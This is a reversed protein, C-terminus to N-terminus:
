SGIAEGAFQQWWSETQRDWMILDSNRLKSSTRFDHIVGDLRRDFVIAANCLPCFTITVPEDGVVDNVIEHWALIRPLYARADGNLKFANVPKSAGLWQQAASPTTFTPADLPPIGDRPSGSSIITDYPVAHRSFHTLWVRTSIGANRLAAEYNTDPDIEVVEKAERLTPAVADHPLPVEAM